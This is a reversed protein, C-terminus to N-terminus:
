EPRMVGGADERERRARAATPGIAIRAQHRVRFYAAAAILAYDISAVIAEALPGSQDPMALLTLAKFLALTLLIRVVRSTLVNRVDELLDAFTYSPPHM